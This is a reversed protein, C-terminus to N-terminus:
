KKKAEKLEIVEGAYRIGKGKYPEPPRYSRIEAAVKGVLSKDAGRIVIETQTPTTIEIGAPVAYVVPHSLGLTLNLGTGQAQARYGVGVLNLVKEFGVTVGHIANRLLAAATGSYMDSLTEGDISSVQIQDGDQVLLVLPPIVQSLSAKPGKVLLMKPEVTVTVGKPIVIPNKAIRSMSLEDIFLAYLKV